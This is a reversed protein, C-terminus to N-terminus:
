STQNAVVLDLRGDGNLDGAAIWRPAAGAAYTIPSSFSPCVAHAAPALLVLVIAISRLFMLGGVDTLPAGGDRRSARRRGAAASLSVSEIWGALVGASRQDTRWRRCRLLSTARGLGTQWGNM